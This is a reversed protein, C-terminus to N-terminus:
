LIVALLKRGRTRVNQVAPKIVILAKDADKRDIKIKTKTIIVANIEKNLLHLASDFDKVSNMFAEYQLIEKKSWYKQIWSLYIFEKKRLSTISENYEKVMDIITQRSTWNNEIMETNYEAVFIYQSIDSALEEYQKIRLDARNLAVRISEIIRSSFLGLIAIIFAVLWTGTQTLISTRISELWSNDPMTLKEKELGL